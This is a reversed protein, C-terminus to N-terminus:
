EEKDKKTFCDIHFAKERHEDYVPIEEIPKGCVDCIPRKEEKKQALKVEREQQISYPTRAEKGMLRM